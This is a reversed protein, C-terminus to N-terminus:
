RCSTRELNMFRETKGEDEHIENMVKKMMTIMHTVNRMKMAKNMMM